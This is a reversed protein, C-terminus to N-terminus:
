ASARSPQLQRLADIRDSATPHTLSKKDRPIDRLECLRDLADIMQEPSELFEAVLRDAGYELRRSVLGPLVIYALPAAVAAYGMGLVPGMATSLDLNPNVFHVLVTAYCTAGAVIAALLKLVDRRVVHAIEHALVARLQTTSMGAVLGGGVVVLNRFLGGTAHANNERGEHVRVQFRPVRKRKSVEALWADLEAHPTDRLRRSRWFQLWPSLWTEYLPFLCAALPVLLFSFASRGQAFMWFFIGFAGCFGVGGWFIARAEMRWTRDHREPARAAWLYSWRWVDVLLVRTHMYFLLGFAAGVVPLPYADPAGLLAGLAPLSCAALGASVAVAFTWGAAMTARRVGASMDDGPQRRHLFWLALAAAAGVVVTAPVFM